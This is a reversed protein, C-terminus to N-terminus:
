FGTDTLKRKLGIIWYIGTKDLTRSFLFWQGTLLVLQVLIRFFVTLVIRSFGNTWNEYSFGDTRLFVHGTDRFFLGKLRWYGGASYSYKAPPLLTESGSWEV